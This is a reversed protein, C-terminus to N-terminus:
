EGNLHLARHLAGAEKSLSVTFSLLLLLKITAPQEKDRHRERRGYDRKRELSKKGGFWVKGVGDQTGDLLGRTMDMEVVISNYARFDIRERVYM